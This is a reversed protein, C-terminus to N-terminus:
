RWIATSFVAPGRSCSAQRRSTSFISSWKLCPGSRRQCGENRGRGWTLAITARTSAISATGIATNGAVQRVRPRRHRFSRHRLSQLRYLSRLRSLVVPPVAYPGPGYGYQQYYRRWYGVKEVGEHPTDLAALGPALGAIADGPAGLGIGDAIFVMTLVLGSRLHHERKKVTSM